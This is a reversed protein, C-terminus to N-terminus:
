LEDHTTQATADEVTADAAGADAAAEGDVVPESDDSSATTENTDAETTANATTTENTEVVKPKPKKKSKLKSFKGEIPRLSIKIEASELSPPETIALAEQAEVKENLWSEFQNVEELLNAVHTENLWPKKEPWSEIEPRAKGIFTRAKEIQAPRRTLEKARFEMADGKAKLAEHTKKFVETTSDAGDMYLWDEKDMLEDKFAEREEETTVTQIDEDELKSRTSYIYAELNSKAAEQARKAEDKKRLEDLVNISADLQAQSMPAMPLGTVKVDLATRFVRRRERMKPEEEVEEAAEEEKDETPKEADASKATQDDAAAADATPKTTAEEDDGDTSNGDTSNGDTSNGDDTENKPKTIKKPKAKIPVYDIIEVAYEAKEVDLIGHADYDFHINLKGVTDNYKAMAEKVKTIEITMVQDSTAGPPLRVGDSVDLKVTMKVDETRNRLSVMRHHPVKKFAPVLVTPESSTFEDAPTVEYTMGHSAADAAGFKRMRFTTSMNAAYLGAGMAVAEDADLHVDFKRGNIAATIADKVGPVRSSGGIVEIAEIEDLTVNYEGLAAVIDRLPATMREFVDGALANFEDRTIKSRLDIDNHLSEVSFPAERNASLIEKTKRVQKRMKGVARPIKTLDTGHKEKFEAMFHDMVLMDLTDGGVSEDWKLAKIEFQGYQKKKAAKDAFSSYRVLAAGSSTHGVDVLIMWKPETFEKDIGWQLAACSLDSKMALVNLGAIEAADRLARRQSQSWYAPTAIVADRIKGKGADTGIKMAYELLMAVMEEAKYAENGKKLKIVVPHGDRTSDGTTEYALKSGVRTESWFGDTAKGDNGLADRARTVVLEPARPHLDNAAEGVAREGDYFSVAATTKRKSVENLAISIPVRGPAVLSVKLYEGGYDIGIVAASAVTRLLLTAITTALVVLPPARRRMARPADPHATQAIV